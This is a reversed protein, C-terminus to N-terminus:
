VVQPAHIMYIQIWITIHLDTETFDNYLTLANQIMSDIM